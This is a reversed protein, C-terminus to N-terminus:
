SVVSTKKQILVLVLIACCFMKMKLMIYGLGNVLGRFKSAEVFWKKGLNGKQFHFLLLQHPQNPLSRGSNGTVAMAHMHSLNMSTTLSNNM